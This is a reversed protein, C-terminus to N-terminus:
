DVIAYGAGRLTGLAVAGERFVRLRRGGLLGVVTSATGGAPTPGETVVAGAAAVIAPDLAEPAAAPPQGSRNASTAVLAGGALRCLAAATPHPTWRVSVWGQGDKVLGPLSERCPVVLSLPGPWFRGALDAFDAGLPGDMFGDPVVADMHSLEGVLLPLPKTSPRAKIAVIRGLATADTALAGLAFFTETPYVLCGGDRLMRAAEALTKRDM